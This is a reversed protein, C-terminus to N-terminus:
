KKTMEAIKSEIKMLLEEVKNWPVITSYKGAARKIQPYKMALESWDELSELIKRIESSGLVRDFDKILAEKFKEFEDVAKEEKIRGKLVKELESKIRSIKDKGVFTTLGDLQSIIDSYAKSFDSFSNLSRLTKIPKAAIKGIESELLSILREKEREFEPDLTKPKTEPKESIKPEISTKESELVKSEMVASKETEIKGFHDSVREPFMSGVLKEVEGREMPYIEATCSEVRLLEQIADDGRIVTKSKIRMTKATKIVGDLILVDSKSLEPDKFYIKLCGSFNGMRGFIDRFRGREIRLPKDSIM